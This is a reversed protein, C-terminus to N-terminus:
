FVSSELHLINALLYSHNIAGTTILDNLRIILSFATKSNLKIRVFNSLIIKRYIDSRIYGLVICFFVCLSLYFLKDANSFVNKM